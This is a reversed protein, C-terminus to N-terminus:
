KEPVAKFELFHTAHRYIRQAKDWAKGSDWGGVFYRDDYNETNDAFLMIITDNPEQDEIDIWKGVFAIQDVTYSM